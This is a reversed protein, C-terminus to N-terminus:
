LRGFDLAAENPLPLKAHRVAVSRTKALADHYTKVGNPRILFVVTADYEDRVGELFRVFKARDSQRTLDLPINWGEDHRHVRVVSELCEVFFPRLADASGSPLLTIGGKAADDDEAVLLANLTEAEGALRDRREELQESRRRLELWEIRQAIDDAGRGDPDLGLARLEARKAELRARRWRAAEIRRELSAADSRLEALELPAPEDSALLDRAVQGIALAAILLALTGIVCALISLFPFLSIEDRPRRRM